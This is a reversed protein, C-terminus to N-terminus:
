LHVKAGGKTKMSKRKRQTGETKVYPGSTASWAERRVASVLNRNRTGRLRHEAAAHRPEYPTMQVDPCLGDRWISHVSRPLTPPLPQHEHFLRVASKATDCLGAHAFGAWALGLPGVSCWHAELPGRTSLPSPTNDGDLAALVAHSVEGQLGEAVALHEPYDWSELTRDMFAVMHPFEARVCTTSPSTM